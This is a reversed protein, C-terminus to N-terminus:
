KEEEVLEIRDRQIWRTEETSKIGFSLALPGDAKASGRLIKRMGLRNTYTGFVACFTVDCERVWLEDGLPVTGATRSGPRGSTSDADFLDAEGSGIVRVLEGGKFHYPRELNKPLFSIALLSESAFGETYRMGLPTTITGSVECWGLVCARVVVHEGVRLQGEISTDTGLGSRINIASSGAVMGLRDMGRDDPPPPLVPPWAGYVPMKTEDRLMEFKWTAIVPLRELMGSIHPGQNSDTLPTAQTDSRQINSSSANLGMLQFESREADYFALASGSSGPFTDCQHRITAIKIGSWKIEGQSMECDSTFISHMADYDGGFGIHTGPIIPVLATDFRVPSMGDRMISKGNIRFPLLDMRPDRQGDSLRFVMWDNAVLNDADEGPIFSGTINIPPWALKLSVNARKQDYRFLGFDPFYRLSDKYKSEDCVLAGTEPEIAGHRNTFVYPVDDIEVLVASLQGTCNRILGIQAAGRLRAIERASLGDIDRPTFDVLRRWNADEFWGAKAPSLPALGLMLCLFLERFKAKRFVLREM